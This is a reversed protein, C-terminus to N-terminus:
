RPRTLALRLTLHALEYRARGRHSRPDYGLEDTFWDHRAQLTSHHMNLAAAAARISPCQILQTLIRRNRDDLRALAQVDPHGRWTRLLEDAAPLLLGYDDADVVPVDDSTLRFALEAARFSRVLDDASTIPGVGRPTVELSEGAHLLFVALVGSPTLATTARRHSRVCSAPAVVIRVMAAPSVGLRDLASAREADSRSSDLATDLAARSPSEKRLAFSVAFSLRELVMADNAHAS